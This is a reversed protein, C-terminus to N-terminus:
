STCTPSMLRRTSLLMPTRRAAFLARQMTPILISSYYSGIFASCCASYLQAKWYDYYSLIITNRLIIVGVRSSTSIFLSEPRRQSLCETYHTSLTDAIHISLSIQIVCSVLLPRNGHFFVEEKKANPKTQEGLFRGQIRLAADDCCIENVGVVYKQAVNESVLM